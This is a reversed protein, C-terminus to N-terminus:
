GDDLNRTPLLYVPEAARVMGLAEAREVIRGPASSEDVARGLRAREVELEAIQTRLVDLERQNEVLRAHVAAVGFLGCLMVLFLVVAANRRRTRRRAGEQDLMRLEPRAAQRSRAPAPATRPLALAATM